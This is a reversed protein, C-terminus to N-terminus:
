GSNSRRLRKADPTASSSNNSRSSSASTSGGSSSASNSSSEGSSSAKRKNLDKSRTSAAKIKALSEEFAASFSRCLFEEKKTSAASAPQTPEFAGVKAQHQALVSKLASIEAQQEVLRKELRIVLKAGADCVAEHQALNARKTRTECTEVARCKWNGCESDLHAQMERRKRMGGNLMAGCHRGGQPCVMMVEPCVNHHESFKHRICVAKCFACSIYSFDCQLAHNHEDAVSGTWYCGRAQNRCTFEDVARRLLISPRVPEIMAQQCLPCKGKCALEEIKTYCPQCVHHEQACVIVAPYSIEFCVGCHLHSPLPTTFREKDVGM